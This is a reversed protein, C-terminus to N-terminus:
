KEYRVIPSRQEGKDALQQVLQSVTRASREGLISSSSGATIVFKIEIASAGTSDVAPATSVHDVSM